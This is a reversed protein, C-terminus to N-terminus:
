QSPIQAEMSYVPPHYPHNRYYVEREELILAERSRLATIGPLGGHRPPQPFSGISVTKRLSKGVPLSGAAGAEPPFSPVSPSTLHKSTPRYPLSSSSVARTNAAGPLLSARTTPGVNSSRQKPVPLSPLPGTPPAISPRSPRPLSNASM